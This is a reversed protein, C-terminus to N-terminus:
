GSDLRGHVPFCILTGPIGELTVVVCALQPMIEQSSGPGAPPAGSPAPSHPGLRPLHGFLPVTYSPPIPRPRPPLDPEPLKQSGSM